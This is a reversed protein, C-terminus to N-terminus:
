PTTATEFHVVNEGPKAYNLKERALREITRPDQLSRIANELKRSTAEQEKIQQQLELIRERDKQNTAIKPQFWKFVGLVVGIVVLLLVTRTLKDWISLGETM